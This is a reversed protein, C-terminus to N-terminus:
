SVASGSMKFAFNTNDFVITKLNKIGGRSSGFFPLM